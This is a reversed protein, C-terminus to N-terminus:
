DQCSQEWGGAAGGVDVAFVDLCGGIFDPLGQAHTRLVVDEKVQSHTHDDTAVQRQVHLQAPSLPFCSDTGPEKM